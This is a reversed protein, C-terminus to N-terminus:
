RHAEPKFACIPSVSVSHDDVNLQHVTIVERKRTILQTAQHNLASNSHFEHDLPGEWIGAACALWSMSKCLWHVLVVSAAQGQQM